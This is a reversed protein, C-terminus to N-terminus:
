DIGEILYSPDSKYGKIYNMKPESLISYWSGYVPNPLMFWKVGWHSKYKKILSHRVEPTSNERVKPLFDGLDDGFLMLVRYKKYVQERRSQKDPGWEYRENQLLIVDTSEIAPFGVKTLNKITDAEQPCHDPNDPRMKCRRNSIYIITVGLSKVYALFAKAGPIAKAEAREVWRDWAEENHESNDLLLQGQYPSNDLVTEDIDLIVAPRLHAYDGEQEIAATWQKDELARRLVQTAITYTQLTQARYESAIQMWLTANLSNNASSACSFIIEVLLVGLIPKAFSEV